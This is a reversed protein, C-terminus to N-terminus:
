KSRYFNAWPLKALFNFFFFRLVNPINAPHYKFYSTLGGESLGEVAVDDMQDVISDLAENKSKGVQIILNM